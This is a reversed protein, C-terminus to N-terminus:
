SICYYFDIIVNMLALSLVLKHMNLMQEAHMCQLMRICAYM